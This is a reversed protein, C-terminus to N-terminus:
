SSFKDASSLGGFGCARNGYASSSGPRDCRKSAGDRWPVYATPRKRASFTAHSQGARQPELASTIKEAHLL